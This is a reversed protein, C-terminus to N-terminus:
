RAGGKEVAARRGKRQIRQNGEHVGNGDRERRPTKVRLQGKLKADQIKDRTALGVKRTKVTRKRGAVLAVEGVAEEMMVVRQARLVEYTALQGAALVAVLPLNRAARYINERKQDTVILWSRVEPRKLRAGGGMEKGKEEIQGKIDKIEDLLKAMEKTKGEIKGMGSVVVLRGEKSKLSLAALLAKQRMKKALTRSYDRPKPAFAVGGGVFIPAKRDGHRARGTGKQKYLKKRTRNVEARKQASQTGQRQNALYVRVSQALLQPSAEVRFIEKPLEPNENIRLM